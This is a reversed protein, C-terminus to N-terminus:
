KKHNYRNKGVFTTIHGVKPKSHLVNVRLHRGLCKEQPLYENPFINQPFHRGPFHELIRKTFHLNEDDIYNKLIKVFFGLLHITFSKKL